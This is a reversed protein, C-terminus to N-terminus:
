AVSLGDQMQKTENLQKMEEAFLGTLIRDQLARIDLDRSLPQWHYSDLLKHSNLWLMDLPSSLGLQAFPIDSLHLLQSGYGMSWLGLLIGDPVHQENAPIDGDRMADRIINLVKGTINEELQLIENQKEASIKERIAPSKIIQMNQVEHPHLLAYLSHALGVAAIRERHNGPWKAARDFLEIMGIMCRCSIAGVLDEKSSFHGYVTGKSYEVAAAVREMTLHGWGERNIMQQAADLILQEREFRERQKRNLVNM